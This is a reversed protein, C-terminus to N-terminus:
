AKDNKKGFRCFCDGVSKKRRGGKRGERERSTLLDVGRSIRKRGRNLCTSQRVMVVYLAPYVSSFRNAVLLYLRQVCEIDVLYTCASMSVDDNNQFKRFCISVGEM